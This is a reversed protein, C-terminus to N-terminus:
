PAGKLRRAAEAYGGEGGDVFHIHDAQMPSPVICTVLATSQRHMGYRCEGRRAAESLLAEIADLRGPAADITMKLGDDFKRFDANEALERAYRRADFTGLKRGTRHLYVMLRATFLVGLRAAIRRPGRAAERVELGLGDHSLRMPPGEPPVPNGAREGSAALALVRDVLARFAPDAGRDGPLVILSAVEGQRAPIASWRCSLGTLDPRTGPPAAPVAFRGAKMEGEAWSAGGGAFMAYAVNASPCYRAARVDHGAARIASLPVFATRMALGLEEGVWTRTAALAGRAADAAPPPLAVFAGDGGFVFPAESLGTANQIAAIVSAGAMNVTKYRGEAIAQTSSVIDALALSWDDPLARYAAPDAADEFRTLLPLPVLPPAPEATVM